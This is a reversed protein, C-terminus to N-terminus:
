GEKAVRVPEPQSHADSQHRRHPLPLYGGGSVFDACFPRVQATQWGTVFLGSADGQLIDCVGRGWAGFLWFPLWGDSLFECKGKWPTIHRMRFRIDFLVAGRDKEVPARPSGGM